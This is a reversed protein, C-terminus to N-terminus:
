QHAHVDYVESFDLDKAVYINIRAGQNIYLTPPINITNRLAESAMNQANAQSNEYNDANNGSRKAIYALGDDLMSLMIAGGFRQWFHTDVYGPLGSGGLADAGPSDVNVIVGNPTKIRTWLVFIRAQGQQLNSKYEGIVQSGRELLLVKGNDSYVNRTLVCATMGQVTSVLKTQLACDLFTGKAILLNRDLDGILNATSLELQARERRGGGAAMGKDDTSTGTSAASGGVSTMLGTSSKDLMPAPPPPQVAPLEGPLVPISAPAEPASAPESAAPKPLEPFDFSRNPVSDDTLTPPAKQAEATKKRNYFYLGGLVALSALLLLFFGIKQARGIGGTENASPIGREGDISNLVDDNNKQAM